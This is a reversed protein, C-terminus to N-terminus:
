DVYQFETSMMLGQAVLQWNLPRNDREVFKITRPLELHDPGRGLITAFLHHLRAENSSLNKFAESSVISKAQAIVFPSNLTFLAQSAVISEDRKPQTQMPNAFDFARLTPDLNFRNVYGYIARRSTFDQGWLMEPRGGIRRDLNGSAVLLSDRLQEISLRRRNARWLMQNQPDIAVMEERHSSAQQYVESDVIRRVLHKVSWGNRVFDATLWDLLQPHTPKSGQLGFDSPTAVLHSGILYGWVRNVFVRATLPNEPDVIKEALELRGSSNPPFESQEADLVRLFRRPVEEGTMQAEGRVFVFSAPIKKVDRVTMMHAPAGPHFALLTALETDRIKQSVSRNNGTAKKGEADAIKQNLEARKAAYDNRDAESPQYSTLLPLKQEDLENIRDVAAFVGRLSYYDATPIPEYKHDHCRACAVTMGMLGRTTVDIWDDFVEPQNRNAHPGIALFGLAALEPADESLGLQDAAFQERVFQDFPKDANLSAVVYDRYTWAFPFRYFRGQM